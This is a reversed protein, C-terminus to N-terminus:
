LFDTKIDVDSTLVVPLFEMVHIFLPGEGINELDRVTDDGLCPIYGTDGKAIKILSICGDSSRTVALGDAMAVFSYDRNTKRFGLRDGPQLFIEWVKITDNEFLLLQGLNESVKNKRLELLRSAEWPDFNGAPNLEQYIM